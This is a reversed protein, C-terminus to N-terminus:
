FSSFDSNKFVTPQYKYGIIIHNDFLLADIQISGEPFINIQWETTITMSFKSNDKNISYLHYAFKGLSNNPASVPIGYKETLTRCIKNYEHKFEDKSFLGKYETTSSGMSKLTYGFVDQAQYPGLSYVIESLKDETFAYFLMMRTGAGENPPVTVAEDGYEIEKLFVDNGWSSDNVLDNEKSQVSEFSENFHIDNRFTFDFNEGLTSSILLTINLFISLFISFIKKM